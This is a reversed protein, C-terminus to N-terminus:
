EGRSKRRMEKIMELEPETLPIVVPNETNGEGLWPREEMPKDALSKRKDLGRAKRIANDIREAALYRAKHIPRPDRFPPPNTCVRMPMAKCHPCRVSLPKTRPDKLPPRNALARQFREDHPTVLPWGQETCAFGPMSDCRPCRATLPKPKYTM